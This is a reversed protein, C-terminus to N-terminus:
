WIKCTAKDLSGRGLSGLFYGQPKLDTKFNCYYMLKPTRNIYSHWDQIFQDRIRNKLSQFPPIYFNMPVINTLFGFGLHDIVRKMKSAWFNSRNNTFQSLFVSYTISQPNQKMKLFFNVSREKALIYLPFRGLEGYVAYNPTQQSVGLLYRCFRLHIKDVIKYNYIGWVESGYLIIPVILSDFLSLKTQIDLAVRDFVGLLSHYAKLAQDNLQKVASTLNGDSTFNVGLYIFNEVNDISEGNITILDSIPERKKRFVCVKTKLVNIKLSWQNSYRVINDVQSQLSERDTTFLVIDDAFLLLYISLIRLDNDTLSEVDIVNRIDNIFLIFLLPSLPEGQKLGVSVDFFDSFSMDFSFKVCSKVTSYMSQLIKIMKCSVGCEILKSWLADRNVTDFAREFDIFICWLQKKESLVKQVLSHLIFIADSTSRRNRFGFQADDLVNESESWLNLRNRLALSFIKAITNVITIGRYNCPNSTDGKKYIPVIFGKSWSEPYVGSDYIHNFLVTLFRAIFDKSDLFFDAVINEFDPSKNRKLCSITKKIEDETFPRDLQDICLPEDRTSHVANLAFDPDVLSTFNPTNPFHKVFDDPHVQMGSDNNKKRFKNIYSWFKSPSNQSLDSLKLKKTNQYRFKANRKVKCFRSREQLFLIKDVDSRSRAYRRKARYFSAKAEKCKSDFWVSKTSRMSERSPICVRKGFSSFSINHVLSTFSAVFENIGIENSVLQQTLNEFNTSNLQLLQNFYSLDNRDWKINDFSTAGIKTVEVPKCSLTFNVPSHDSFETIDLVNMSSVLHVSTLDSIVYDVTSSVPSNRYTSHYTCRGEDFCGNLICCSNEKCLSLLKHGYHNVSYDHNKRVPLSSYNIDDCPLDLFRDLNLDEICDSQDGTRANFDGMLFVHGLDEYKRIENSLHEFFDFQFLDSNVNHYLGSDEPPIYCIGFYADKDSRLLDKKLKLWLLGKFDISEISIKKDSVMLGLAVLNPM